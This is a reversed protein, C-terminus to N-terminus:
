LANHTLKLRFLFYYKRREFIINKTTQVADILVIATDPTVVLHIYWSKKGVVAYTQWALSSVM